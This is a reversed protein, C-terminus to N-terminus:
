AATWSAAQQKWASGGTFCLTEPADAAVARTVQGPEPLGTANVPGARTEVVTTHTLSGQM